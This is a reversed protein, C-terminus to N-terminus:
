FGKYISSSPKEGRIIAKKNEVTRLKKIYKRSSFHNKQNSNSLLSSVNRLVKEKVQQGRIFFPKKNEPKYNKTAIVRTSNESPSKYNSDSKAILSNQSGSLVDKPIFVNLVFLMVSAMAVFAVAERIIPRDPVYVTNIEKKREFPTQKQYKSLEIIKGMPKQSDNDTKPKSNEKNSYKSFNILKGMQTEKTNLNKSPKQEEKFINKSKQNKRKLYKSMYYIQPEKVEQQTTLNQSNNTSSEETDILVTNGDSTTKSEVKSSLKQKKKRYADLSVINNKKRKIM